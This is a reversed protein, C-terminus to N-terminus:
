RVAIALNASGIESQEDRPQPDKFRDVTYFLKANVTYEGAVLGPEWGLVRGEGARLPSEHPGQADARAAADGQPLKKDEEMFAPDDPHGSFNPSFMWEKTAKSNGDKDLVDVRLYVARESPGTPVSHGGGLNVVDFSLNRKGEEPQMVTLGLSGLHRQRSGAGMLLHRGVARPASGSDAAVQLLTRPMHCDQCQQKGLGPKSFDERWELFTQMQKGAIRKDSGAGHCHACLASTKLGPDAVTKHAADVKRTGRIAGEPTLHCGACTIGGNGPIGDAPKVKEVSEMKDIAFPKPSHCSSCYGKKEDGVGKIHEGSTAHASASSSVRAPVWAADGSMARMMTHESRNDGGVGMTYELYIEKHCEGCTESSTASGNPFTIGASAAVLSSYAVVITLIFYVVPSIRWKPKM